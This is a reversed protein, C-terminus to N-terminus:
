VTEAKENVNRRIPPSLSRTDAFAFKATQFSFKTVSVFFIEFRDALLFPAQSFGFKRASVFDFSRSRFNKREDCVSRKHVFVFYKATLCLIKQGCVIIRCAFARM